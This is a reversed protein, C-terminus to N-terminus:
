EGADAKLKQACRDLFALWERGSPDIFADANSPLEDRKRLTDNDFLHNGLHIDVHESKLQELCAYYRQRVAAKDDGLMPGTGIGGVMGARFTRSGDSVNFFLSMVGPSHGPTHVCEIRTNGLEIVSKDDLLVDPAFPETAPYGFAAALDDAQRMVMPADDRGIFVKAGYLQQLARTGGTHDFHGHSQVIYKIDGPDFGLMRVSDILMFLTQRIGTDIVILGKGTDILHTLGFYSGAFYLNGFIRFPKIREVRYDLDKYFM